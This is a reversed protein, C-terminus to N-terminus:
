QRCRPTLNPEVFVQLRFLSVNVLFIQRDEAVKDVAQFLFLWGFFVFLRTAMHRHLPQQHLRQQANLLLLTSLYSRCTSLKPPIHIVKSNLRVALDYPLRHNVPSSDPFSRPLPKPGLTSLRRNIHIFLSVRCARMDWEPYHPLGDVVLTHDYADM